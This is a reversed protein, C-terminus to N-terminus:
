LNILIYSAVIAATEGRLTLTGLSAVTFGADHAEAVEGETFGGEPGIFIAEPKTNINSMQEGSIDFIIKDKIDKVQAIADTFEMAELIAPISSRGSLEAAEKAIKELRDYRLGTKVTNKTIIPVIKDIGIETAKQVVLEFNERKLIALYLTIKHKPENNNVSEDIVEFDITDKSMHLIRVTTELMSDNTLMVVEGTKFKLVNRFQHVLDADEITVSGDRVEYPTIFRHVKM